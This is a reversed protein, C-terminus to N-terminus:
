LKIKGKKKINYLVCSFKWDLLLKVSGSLILQQKDEKPM